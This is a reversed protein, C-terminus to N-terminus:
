WFYEFYFPFFAYFGHVEIIMLISFPLGLNCLTINIYSYNGKWGFFLFCLKFSLTDLICLYIIPQKQYPHVYHKCFRICKAMRMKQTDLLIRLYILCIGSINWLMYTTKPIRIFPWPKLLLIPLKFSMLRNSQFNKLFQSNLLYTRDFTKM